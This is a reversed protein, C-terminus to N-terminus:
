DESNLKLATVITGRLEGQAESLAIIHSTLDKVSDKIEGVDDKVSTKVDTLEAQVSDLKQFFLKRDSEQNSKLVAIEETHTNIQKRMDSKTKILYTALVTGVASVFAAVWALDFM